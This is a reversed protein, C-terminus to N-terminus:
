AIARTVTERMEDEFSPQDRNTRAALLVKSPDRDDLTVWVQSFPLVSLLTAPMLIAFGLYVLPVGPDNKVIVGTTGVIRNLGLEGGAVEISEGFQLPMGAPRDMEYDPSRLVGALRQDPGYVQVNRLNNALLLISEDVAKVAGGKDASLAKVGKLQLLRAPLVAGWSRGQGQDPVSKLPVVVPVGNLLLQLRDIAWDAQYVTAGGWRMPQNVFIEANELLPKQTRADEVALTSYFQEVEGNERYKIRFNDVRLVSTELLSKVPNLFDYLPGKARRGQEVVTGMNISGGEGIFIESSAGVLIGAAAGVMTVLLGLHVFLPAFKGVLGRTATITSPSEEDDTIVSFGRARLADFLTRVQANAPCASAPMDEAAVASTDLTVLFSDPSKALGKVSRADALRRRQARKALPLQTTGTCAAISAATWVCLGLFLPCDYMHDFGLTLIAGSFNPYAQAYFEPPKNQELLTGAAGLIAIVAMQVLAASFNSWASSGLIPKFPKPIDVSLLFDELAIRWGPVEEPPAEATSSSSATSGGRARQM